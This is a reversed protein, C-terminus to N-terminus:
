ARSGVPAPPGSQGPVVMKLLELLTLRQAPTLAAFVQEAARVREDRLRKHVAAGGATLAVLTSRRNRPDTHRRVFGADELADIQPTIARPVVGLIIALDGMCLQETSDALVGLVRGQAPTLGHPAFRAAEAARMMKGVRLFHEGLSGVRAEGNV